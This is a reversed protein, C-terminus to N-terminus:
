SRNISSLRGDKCNRPSSVRTFERLHSITDMSYHSTRSSVEHLLARSFSCGGLLVFYVFLLFDDFIVISHYRDGLFHPKVSRSFGGGRGLLLDNLLWQLKNVQKFVQNFLWSM